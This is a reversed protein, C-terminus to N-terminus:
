VSVAAHMITSVRCVGLMTQSGLM